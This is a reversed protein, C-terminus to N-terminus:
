NLAIDAFKSKNILVDSLSSGGMPGIAFWIGRKTSAHMQSLASPIAFSNRPPLNLVISTDKRLAAGGSTCKAQRVSLFRNCTNMLFISRRILLRAVSRHSVAKWDVKRFASMPPSWPQKQQDM